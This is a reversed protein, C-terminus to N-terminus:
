AKANAGRLRAVVHDSVNTNPDWTASGGSGFHIPQLTPPLVSLADDREGVRLLYAARQRAANSATALLRELRGIDVDHALQDLKGALDVWAEFSAPRSAIQVLLAEPGFAPLGSSWTLLM